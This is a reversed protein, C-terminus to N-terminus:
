EEAGCVAVFVDFVEEDAGVFHGSAFSKLTRHEAAFFLALYLYVCAAALAFAGGGEPQCHAGRAAAAPDEDDLELLGPAAALVLARFLEADCFAWRQPSCSLASFSPMLRAWHGWPRPLPGQAEGQGSNVAARSM